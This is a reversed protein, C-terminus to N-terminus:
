RGELEKVRQELSEIRQNHKVLTKAVEHQMRWYAKKCTDDCYKKNKKTKPSKKGCYECEIAEISEQYIGSIGDVARPEIKKTINSTITESM